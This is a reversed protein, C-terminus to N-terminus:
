LLGTGKGIVVAGIFSSGVLNLVGYLVGYTESLYASALGIPLGIIIAMIIVLVWKGTESM